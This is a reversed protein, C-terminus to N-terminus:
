GTHILKHQTMKVGPLSCAREIRIRRYRLILGVVPYCYFAARGLRKDGNYKTETKEKPYNLKKELDGLYVHLPSIRIFKRGVSQM